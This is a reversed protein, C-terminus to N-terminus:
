QQTLYTLVLGTQGLRMAEEWLRGEFRPSDFWQWPEISGEVESLSPDDLKATHSAEPLNSGFEIFGMGTRRMDESFICWRVRGNESFVAACPEVDSQCYRRVTSTVSTNFVDDALRCLNGLSAVGSRLLQIRDRFLEMPMLLSAAFEDAEEEMKDKSVFNTKSSHCEGGLLYPKHLYYHGLEHALTFRVRGLSRGPGQERYSIAFSDIEKIFRIRGDFGDGFKDPLLEIGEIKAIAIPYVPLRWLDLSKLIAEATKAPKM